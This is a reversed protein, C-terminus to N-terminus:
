NHVSQWVQESAPPLKDMHKLFLALQWIQQDSLTKGWAPMGTWRIGHKIKWFTFGEPDDEVGDTALQPPQPDLGKALASADGKATGHCFACNQGYLQIGAILNADNLEVPNPGKPAEHELTARLSTQAAWIELRNPAADAGAPVLGSQLVFYIIAVVVVITALFGLIFGRM